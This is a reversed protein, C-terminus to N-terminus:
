SRKKLLRQKRKDERNEAINNGNEIQEVEVIKEEVGIKASTVDFKIEQGEGNEEKNEIIM